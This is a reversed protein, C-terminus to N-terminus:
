DIIMGGEFHCIFVVEENKGDGLEFFSKVTRYIKEWGHFNNLDGTSRTVYKLKEGISSEFNQPGRVVSDVDNHSFGVGASLAEQLFGIDFEGIEWGAYSMAWIPILNGNDKYWVAETGAFKGAGLYSDIYLFQDNEYRLDKSGPRSPNESPAADGAYTAKKAELLFEKFEYYNVGTKILNTTKM